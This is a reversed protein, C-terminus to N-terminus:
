QISYSNGHQHQMARTATVLWWLPEAVKEALQLTHTKKLPLEMYLEKFHGFNTTTAQTVMALAEQALYPWLHHRLHVQYSGRGRRGAIIKVQSGLLLWLDLFSGEGYDQCVGASGLRNNLLEVIM